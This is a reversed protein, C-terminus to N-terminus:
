RANPRHCEETIDALKVIAESCATSLLYDDKQNPNSIGIVLPSWLATDQAMSNEQTEEEM